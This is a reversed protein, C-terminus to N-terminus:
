SKGAFRMFRSKGKKQKASKADASQAKRLDEMSELRALAQANSSPPMRSAAVSLSALRRESEALKEAMNEDVQKDSGLVAASSTIFEMDDVGGSVPHSPEPRTSTPPEAWPAIEHRTKPPVKLSRRRGDPKSRRSMQDKQEPAVESTSKTRKKESPPLAGSRQLSSNGTPPQAQPPRAPDFAQCDTGSDHRPNSKTSVNEVSPPGGLGFDASSSAASLHSKRSLKSSSSSTAVSDRHGYLTAASQRKQDAKATQPLGDWKTNVRPVEAPLKQSTLGTMFPTGKAAAQKKQSQAYQELAGTTPEKVSLFDFFPNGKKKSKKDTAPASTNEPSPKHKSAPQVAWDIQRTSADTPIATIADHGGKQGPLIHTGPMPSKPEACLPNSHNRYTLRPVRIHQAPAPDENSVSPM